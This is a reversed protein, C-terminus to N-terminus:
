VPYPCVVNHAQCLLNPLSGYDVLSSEDWNQLLWDGHPVSNHPLCLSHILDELRIEGNSWFYNAIIGPTSTVDIGAGIEGIYNAVDM